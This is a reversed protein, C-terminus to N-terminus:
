ERGYKERNYSEIFGFLDPYVSARTFGFSKALYTRLDSKLKAPVEIATIPPLRVKAGKQKEGFVKQLKDATWLRDPRLNISISNRRNLDLEEPVKCFIFGGRQMRMRENLPPPLFVGVQEDLEGLHDPLRKGAQDDVRTIQSSSLDVGLIVGSVGDHKQRECAFWLSVYPDASVDILRTPAGCHQLVALLELDTRGGRVGAEDAALVLDIEAQAIEAEVPQYGMGHADRVARWLSSHMGYDINPLGRWRLAVDKSHSILRSVSGLVDEVTTKATSALLVNDGSWLDM